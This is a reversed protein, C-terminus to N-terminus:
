FHGWAARFMARDKEYGLPLVDKLRKHQAFTLTTNLLKRISGPARKWRTVRNFHSYFRM